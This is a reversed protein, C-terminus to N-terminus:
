ERNPKVRATSVRLFKVRLKRVHVHPRPQAVTMGLIGEENVHTAESVLFAQTIEPIDQLPSIM